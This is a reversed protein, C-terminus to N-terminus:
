CCACCAARATGNGLVEFRPTVDAALDAVTEVLARLCRWAMPDDGAEPAILVRTDSGLEAFLSGIMQARALLASSSQEAGAVLVVEKVRAGRNRLRLLRETVRVRFRSPPEGKERTLVVSEDEPKCGLRAFDVSPAENEAILLSVNTSPM